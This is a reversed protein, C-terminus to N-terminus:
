LKVLEVRRNQQRGEPTDNPAAPRSAGFGKSELRAADIGFTSVLYAKVAAARKESLTQNAAEDGVNDTHGEILLRLDAHEKLMRGIENLTPTSEPRLRDSGTDFLIGQTAVRGDTMLADYMERGGAAIRLNAILRPQEASWGNMMVYLRNSRGPRANPVNLARYENAYLKMYDGDVAIRIRVPTESTDARLDGRARVKEHQFEAFHTGIELYPEANAEDTVFNIQMANGDGALDFEITFREPLEEPLAVLFEGQEASLWRQSQWEVIQMNGSRFEFRKPFNGVRDRSFDEDLLIRDGPVFDYNAWAGEGPKLSAAPTGSSKAAGTAGADTEGAAPAEVIKVERGEEEAKEICRSDTAACEVADLAKETTEDIKREVRQKAREKLRRLSGGLQAEATDPVVATLGFACMGLVVPFFRMQM